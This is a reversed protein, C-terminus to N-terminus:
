EEDSLLLQTFEEDSLLQIEAQNTAMAIYVALIHKCVLSTKKKLVTYVYSPCTCYLSSTFVSYVGSSGRVQYFTRGATSQMCVVNKKDVIQLALELCTEFMCNLASLLEVSLGEEPNCNKLELLLQQVSLYVPNFTDM